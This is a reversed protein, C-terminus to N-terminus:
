KVRKYTIEMMKTEQGMKDTTYMEYVNTDADTWKSVTRFPKFPTGTMPDPMNGKEELTGDPGMHGTAIMVGTSMNDIWTSVYEKKFNDFATIGQGEFAMGGMAPDPAGRAIQQLHRGGNIWKTEQTGTMTQPKSKPDMWMKLEYTWNGVFPNLRAQGEGPTMYAVCEASMMPNADKKDKAKAMALGASLITVGVAVLVHKMAKM